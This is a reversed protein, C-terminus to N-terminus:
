RARYRVVIAPHRGNGYGEGVVVLDSGDGAVALARFGVLSPFREKLRGDDAFGHDVEGGPWLRAM